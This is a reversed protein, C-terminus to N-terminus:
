QKKVPCPKITRLFFAIDNRVTRSFPYPVGFVEGHVVDVFEQLAQFYKEDDGKNFAGLRAGAAITALDNHSLIKNRVSLLQKAFNDLEKALAELLSHASNPWDGYKLMYDIGLNFSGNMDAKDHLKIIQLLAYEHSIKYLRAWEDKAISESLEAERPNNDFLGLHNLWYEHAKNCLTCFDRVVAASLQNIANTM